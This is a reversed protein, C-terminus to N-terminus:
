LSASGPHLAAGPIQGNELAGFACFGMAWALPRPQSGRLDAAQFAAIRSGAAIGCDRDQGRVWMIKLVFFFGPELPRIVRGECLSLSPALGASTTVDRLAPQLGRRLFGGAHSMLL